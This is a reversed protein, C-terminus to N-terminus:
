EHAEQQTTTLQLYVDELTPRRVELDPLEVNRQLAWGTLTSLASVPDSVRLRVVRDSGPPPAQLSGPLDAVAIDPPLAFTISADMLERAGLTQPSGIAVIEGASIVAIRDALREAEEMYHTTLVITKGLARLDLVLEWAARRAAPDFGTTPEDLFVLEPDGILALAVDLRRREGGSLQACRRAGLEDLGVLAITEDVDRPRGYYGAYLALCERVSLEPEPQSDQLVVGVRARWDRDGRAPDLGLVLAQGDSRKRFGELIEITTTKGAGNPGLLAFIEGQAIELDIGKLAENAGYRCRLGRVIV